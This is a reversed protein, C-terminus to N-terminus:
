RRPIAKRRSASADGRTFATLYIAASSRATPSTRSARRPPTRRSRRQPPKPAAAQPQAARPRHLLRRRWCSRCALRAAREHRRSRRPSSGRRTRSRRRRGARITGSATASRSSIPAPRPWRGSRTSRRPLASAPSRRVAGGVMRHARRDGRVVASPRRSRARRVDRLRRRARGALM